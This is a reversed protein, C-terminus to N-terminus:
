KTPVRQQLETFWNLVVDMRRTAAEDAAPASDRVGMASIFRRGDDMGDYDREFAPGRDLLGKPLPSPNGVAFAPTTTVTAGSVQGPAAGWYLEADVPWIPHLGTAVRFPPGTPPFPQVFLATSRTYAFWKGDPSFVASVPFTSTVDAFPVTLNKEAM